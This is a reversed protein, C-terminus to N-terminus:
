PQHTLAWFWVLRSTKFRLRDGNAFNEKVFVRGNVKLRNRPLQGFMM